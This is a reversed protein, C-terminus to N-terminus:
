NSYRAHWKYIEDRERPDHKKTKGLIYHGKEWGYYSYRSRLGDTFYYPQHGYKESFLYGPSREVVKIKGPQCQAQVVVPVTMLSMVVATVTLVNLKNM